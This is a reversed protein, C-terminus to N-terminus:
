APDPTSNCAHYIYALAQPFVRIFEMGGWTDVGGHDELVNGSRSLPASFPKPGAADTCWATQVAALVEIRSTAPLGDLPGMDALTGAAAEGDTVM